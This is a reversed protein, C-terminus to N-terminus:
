KQETTERKLTWYAERMQTNEERVRELAALGHKLLEEIKIDSVHDPHNARWALKRLMSQADDIAPCTHGPPKVAPPRPFARGTEGISVLKVWRCLVHGTHWGYEESLWGVGLEPNNHKTWRTGNLGEVQSGIPLDFVEQDSWSPGIIDPRTDIFDGIRIPGKKM